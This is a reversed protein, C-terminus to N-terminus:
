YGFRYLLRTYVADLEYPMSALGQQPPAGKKFLNELVQPRDCWRTNMNTVCELRVDCQHGVFPQGEEAVPANTDARAEVPGLPNMVAMADELGPYARIGLNTALDLLGAFAPTRTLTIDTTV